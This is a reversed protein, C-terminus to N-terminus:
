ARSRSAASPGGILAAGSHSTVAPLRTGGCPSTVRNRGGGGTVDRAAPAM